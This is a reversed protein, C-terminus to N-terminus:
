QKGGSYIEDLKSKLSQIISKIANDDNYATVDLNASFEDFISTYNELSIKM